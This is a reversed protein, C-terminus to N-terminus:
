IPRLGDWQLWACEIRRWRWRIWQFETDLKSVRMSWGDQRIYGPLTNLEISVLRWTRRVIAPAQFVIDGDMM